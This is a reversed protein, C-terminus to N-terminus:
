FLSPAALRAIHTFINRPMMTTAKVKVDGLAPDIIKLAEAPATLTFNHGQSPLITISSDTFQKAIRELITSDILADSSGYVFSVPIKQAQKAWALPQQTRILNQVTRMTPLLQQLRKDGIAKAMEPHLQGTDAIVSVLNLRRLLFKKTHINQQSYVPAIMTLKTVANPYKAAYALAIITGLSHAAIAVKPLNLQQLTNHLYAVQDEISYAINNPKPSDGYGLLDVAVIHNNTALAPVIGDWYHGSSEIGHLLVLPEGKGSNAVINLTRRDNNTILKTIEKPLNQVLMHDVKIVDLRQIHMNPNFQKLAYLQGQVIFSDKKGCYFSVPVTVKALEGAFDYHQVLNKISGSVVRPDLTTDYAGIMKHWQKTDGFKTAKALVKGPMLLKEAVTFLGSIAKTIFLSSAYKTALMQEPRLYFPTSIIVLESVSEPYKATYSLAVAGGMSYGVITADQTAKVSELAARLAVVNEKANFNAHAPKPSRGHGLLDVTVVRHGSAVLIDTIHEWQTGDGFLGHLLVVLKGKGTDKRVFLYEQAM